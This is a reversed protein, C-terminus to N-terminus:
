LLPIPRFGHRCCEEIWHQCRAIARRLARGLPDCRGGVELGGRVKRALVGRVKGRHRSVDLAYLNDGRRAELTDIWDMDLLFRWIERTAREDVGLAELVRLTHRWDDGSAENVIRYLAYGAPRGDIELLVRQLPGGGNRREPRDNLVKIEWWSTSRSVFGAHRRRIREYVRPFVRLAEEEAVRRM